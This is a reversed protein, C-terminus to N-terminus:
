KLNYTTVKIYIKDLEEESVGLKNAVRTRIEEEPINIDEYLAKGYIDYIEFERETPRIESNANGVKDKINFVYEYSSRNNSSAIRSTVDGWNGYPCWDVKGLTYFSDVDEERDYVLVAIADIDSDKKTEDLILQIITSKFEAKSIDSPVVVKYRKRTNKPLREIESRSYASLSKGMAKMSLDEIKIIKYDRVLEKNYDSTPQATTIPTQKNSKTKTPIRSTHRSVRKTRRKKSSGFPLYGSIGLSLLNFAVIVLMIAAFIKITTLASNPQKKEKQEM